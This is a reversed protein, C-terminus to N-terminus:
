SKFDFFIFIINNHEIVMEYQCERSKVVKLSLMLVISIIIFMISKKM